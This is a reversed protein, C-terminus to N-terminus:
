PLRAAPGPSLELRHEFCTRVTELQLPIRLYAGQRWLDLQDAYTSSGLWGDQGGALVFFNADPDSLDSVHRASSGFITSHQKTTLRHGTKLVSENGGAIPVDRHVYRKGFVPMLGFPHRLRLRHMDGWTGFRGFARVSHRIARKVTPGINDPACQSLDEAVLARPAWTAWYAKLEDKGYSDRVFNCFVLEFALAGRSATDYRGDWGALAARLPASEKDPPNAQRSGLATLLRENIDLSTAMLVDMMIESLGERGIKGQPSILESLRQARDSPSFFLGIPVATEGPCQNASVVFGEKPQLKSPMDSGTVFRRWGDASGCKVVLDSLDEPKRSPLRVAMAQGIRGEGDAYTMMQGSVSIGDLAARFADWSRAQGVKLMATIEDSPWHGMWRLAIPMRRDLGLIRADSVIPGYPTDRLVISRKRCWRVKIVERRETIANRPLDSVDVFDSSAAHLNAGGWAIWPNRGLAIFPLGPPMLGVAHHSPSRYGAILWAGPLLLGLHPDSALLAGGDRSRSGAIAISNSGRQMALTMLREFYLDAPSTSAPDLCSRCSGTLLRRWIDKWTERGRLKLLECWVPWNADAAVLRGIALVDAVSWPERGLHLVEFEHPLEAGSGLYHNIGRVFAEIWFRTEKPLSATIEPVARDLDLARLLYDLDVGLPGITEALRGQAARRVMEMQGLRLHAHVLGLATALDVDTSAEIFPVQHENWHLVVSEKLPVDDKPMMDLRQRVSISSPLPRRASQIAFQSALLAFGVVQDFRPLM